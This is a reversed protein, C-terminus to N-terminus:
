QTHLAKEAPRAPFGCAFLVFSASAAKYRKAKAPGTLFAVPVTFAARLWKRKAQVHAEHVAATTSPHPVSLYGRMFSAAEIFGDRRLEFSNSFAYFVFKWLNKAGNRQADFSEPDMEFDIFAIRQGDWCFDKPRGRGLALGSVHLAALACGAKFCIQQRADHDYRESFFITRLDTGCDSLVIRDNDHRLVDPVPVGQKKLRVLREREMKLAQVGDSFLARKRKNLNREYQKIYFTESGVILKVVRADSHKSAVLSVGYDLDHAPIEPILEEKKWAM